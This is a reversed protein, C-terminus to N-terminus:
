LDLQPLQAGTREEFNTIEINNKFILSSNRKDHLQSVLVLNIGLFTLIEFAIKGLDLM